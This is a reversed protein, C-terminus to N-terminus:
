NYELLFSGEPGLNVKSYPLPNNDHYYLCTWNEHAASNGFKKRLEMSKRGDFDYKAIYNRVLQMGEPLVDGGFFIKESGESIHVVQHFPCHGGTLELHIGNGLDLNGDVYNLKSRSAFFELVSQPYSSNQPKLAEELEGKQIFFEAEPFNLEQRGEGRDNVLGLSHDSHLHSLIVKTIESPMFGNKLINSLIQPKADIGMQGLGADLLILDHKTEVLFPQVHIFLSGPRSKPDDTGPSFPIFRKGSDVSFSGEILPFINM